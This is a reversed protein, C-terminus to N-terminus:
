CNTVLCLLSDMGYFTMSLVEALDLDGLNSLTVRTRGRDYYFYIKYEFHVITVVSQPYSNCLKVHFKCHTTTLVNLTTTIFDLYTDTIKTSIRSFLYKYLKLLSYNYFKVRILQRKAPLLRFVIINKESKLPTVLRPLICLLNQRRLCSLYCFVFWFGFEFIGICFPLFVSFVPM